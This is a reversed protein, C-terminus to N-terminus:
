PFVEVLRGKAGGENESVSSDEDLADLLLIHRAPASIEAIKALTTPGLKLLTCDVDNPWFGFLHMKWLMVLLSSKGMGADGLVILHNTGDRDLSPRQLFYDIAEFAPKRHMHHEGDSLNAPNVLQCNPEVYYRALEQPDPFDLALQDLKARREDSTRGLRKILKPIWDRSIYVAAAAGVDPM